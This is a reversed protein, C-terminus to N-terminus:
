VVIQHLKQMVREYFVEKVEDENLYQPATRNLCCLVVSAYISGIENALHNTAEDLLYERLRVIDTNFSRRDCVEQLAKNMRRVPKWMGIELLVVGLSYMDHRMGSTIATKGGELQREPHMYPTKMPDLPSFTDRYASMDALGAADYGVLFASYKVQPGDETPLILISEPCITKHVLGAAHTFMVVKAIERAYRVRVELTSKLVEDSMVQTLTVLKLNGVQYTTKSPLSYLLLCERSAEMYVSGVCRPIHMSSPEAHNLIDGLKLVDEASENRRTKEPDSLCGRYEAFLLHYTGQFYLQVIEARDRSTQSIKSICQLETLESADHRILDRPPYRDYNRGYLVDEM